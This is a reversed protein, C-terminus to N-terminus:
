EHSITIAVNGRKHGTEVYRHADAIQGFDYTKEVVAVFRGREILDKLTELKEVSGSTIKSVSIFAGNEKLSGKCQSVGIKQIAAFIVDYKEGNQTFDQATYDITKDAGLRGVFEFNAKSCVGTVEAGWHKALQVAATGVAGSAGYILVKQGKSISAPRLLQLVTMGGFPLCAAEEFSLSKPMATMVASESMSKYQTYCGAKLGNAGFVRESVKFKTVDKGIAEVEGAFQSGLISKRPGRFGLILRMPLRYVPPFDFKRLRVDGTSVSTARIKILVENDKPIPKEVERMELVDASGYKTCIVAKM